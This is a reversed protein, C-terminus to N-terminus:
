RDETQNEELLGRVVVRADLPMGGAAADTRGACWTLGAGTRGTGDGAAAARAGRTARGEPAGGIRPPRPVGTVGAREACAADSPPIGPGATATTERGARSSSR